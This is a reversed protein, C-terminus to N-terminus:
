TPIGHIEVIKIHSYQDKNLKRIVEDFDSSFQRLMVIGSNEHWLSEKPFVMLPGKWKLYLAYLILEIPKPSTSKKRTAM